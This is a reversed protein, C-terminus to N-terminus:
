RILFSEKLRTHKLDKKLIGATLETESQKAKNFTCVLLAMGNFNKWTPSTCPKQRMTGIRLLMHVPWTTILM